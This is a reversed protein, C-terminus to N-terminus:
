GGPRYLICFDQFFSDTALNLSQSIQVLKKERELLEGNCLLQEAGALAANGCVKIKDADMKPLLGINM